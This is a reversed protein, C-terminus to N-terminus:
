LGKEGPPFQVELTIGGPGKNFFLHEGSKPVTYETYQRGPSKLRNILDPYRDGTFAIHDITGNTGYNNSSAPHILAKGRVTCGHDM